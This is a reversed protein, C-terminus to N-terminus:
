LLKEYKLLNQCIKMTDQFKIETFMDSINMIM